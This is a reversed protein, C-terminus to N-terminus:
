GGAQGWGLFQEERLDALGAALAHWVNQRSEWSARIAVVHISQEHMFSCKLVEATPAERVGHCLVRACHSYYPQSVFLFGICGVGPKIQARRGLLKGGHGDQDQLCQCVAPGCNYARIQAKDGGM